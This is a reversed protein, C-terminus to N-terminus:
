MTNIMVKYSFDNHMTVYISADRILRSHMKNQRKLSKHLGIAIYLFHM